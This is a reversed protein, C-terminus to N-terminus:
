HHVIVCPIAVCAVCRSKMGLWEGCDCWGFRGKPTMKVYRPTYLDGCGLKPQQATIEEGEEAATLVFEEAGPEHRVDASTRTTYPVPSQRGIAPLEITNSYKFELKSKDISYFSYGRKKPVLPKADDPATKSTAVTGDPLVMAAGSSTLKGDSSSRVIISDTDASGRELPTGRTSTTIDCTHNVAEGGNSELDDIDGCWGVPLTPIPTPGLCWDELHCISTPETSPARTDSPTVYQSTPVSVLSPLTGSLTVTSCEPTSVVSSDLTFLGCQDRPPYMEKGSQADPLLQSHQQQHQHHLLLNESTLQAPNVHTNTSNTYLLHAPLMLQQQQQQHFAYQSHHHHEIPEDPPQETGTATFGHPLGNFYGVVRRDETPAMLAHPSGAGDNGDFYENAPFPIRSTLLSGITALRQDLMVLPFTWSSRPRTWDSHRLDNSSVVDVADPETAAAGVNPDKIPQPHHYRYLDQDQHRHQLQQQLHVDFASCPTELAHHLLQASTSPSTKM